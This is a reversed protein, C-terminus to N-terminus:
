KGHNNRGNRNQIKLGRISLHYYLFDLGSWLERNDEGFGDIFPNAKANTKM